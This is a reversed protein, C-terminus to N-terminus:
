LEENEEQWCPLTKEKMDQYKDYSLLVAQDIGNQTIIFMEDHKLSDIIEELNRQLTGIDIRNKYM